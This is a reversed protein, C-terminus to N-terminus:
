ELLDLVDGSRPSQPSEASRRREAVVPVLVASVYIVQVALAILGALILGIDVSLVPVIPILAGVVWALQFFTESNTFARGRAETPMTAQLLGDFGFKATGWAFGAAAALAAAAPLGFIQAAIFAAGAEVALGAVVMPEESIYRDLVPTALAALFYGLGAAGILASFDLLNADTESRFAFAVLLLLFGNLFRVGATAFRALRVPRPPTRDVRTKRGHTRERRRPVHRRLAEVGEVDLAPLGTASIASWTFVGAALLLGFGDGVLQMPLVGVAAFAAGALVGIRALQANAAILDHPGELVIPLLSSRSIGHFRSLVLLTFALPFLLVSDLQFIMVLALLARTGSSLVLGGRYAAPFREYVAGLFPGIVAFPALTLLLYWAVNERAETSPVSFFLSGALALAVLTDGAVAGAHSEALRRFGWGRSSFMTRIRAATARSGAGIASM